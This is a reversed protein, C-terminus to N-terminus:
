WEGEYIFKLAVMNEGFECVMFVRRVPLNGCEGPIKQRCVSFVWLLM